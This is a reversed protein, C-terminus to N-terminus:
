DRSGLWAKLDRGFHLTTLIVASLIAMAPGGVLINAILAAGSITLKPLHLADGAALDVVLILGSVQNALLIAKFLKPARGTWLLAAALILSVATVHFAWAMTGLYTMFLAALVMLASFLVAQPPRDIDHM